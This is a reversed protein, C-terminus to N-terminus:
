LMTLIFMLDSDFVLAQEPIVQFGISVELAVSCASM